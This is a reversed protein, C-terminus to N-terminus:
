KYTKKYNKSVHLLSDITKQQVFLTSKTQELQLLTKNLKNTTDTLNQQLKQEHYSTFAQFTTAAAGILAVVFTLWFLLGSKKNTTIVSESTLEAAKTQRETLNELKVGKIYDNIFNFGNITLTLNIYSMKRVPINLYEESTDAFHEGVGHTGKSVYGRDNMDSLLKFLEDKATVSDSDFTKRDILFGKIDVPKHLEGDKLFLLIDILLNDM